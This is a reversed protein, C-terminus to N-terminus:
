ITITLNDHALFVNPPLTSQVHAHTGLEHSIHTLYAREPRLQSIVALAEPLSYHSWHKEHRLANIVLVKLGRLKDLESPAIYNADTIYAFRDIRYGLIPLDKHLAHIPEVTLKSNQIEFPTDVVHLDLEPLAPYQHPSFIYRYDHQLTHAAQQNLYVPISGHQFYNLPRVDDLGAVHDRHAHTVLIADIRTTGTRLMQQRFDPGIDFLINALPPPHGASSPTPDAVSLLASTRLRSDRPDDSSCVQCDCGIIPVGQSTGTGLFTLQM